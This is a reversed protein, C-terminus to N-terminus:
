RNSAAARDAPEPAAPAMRVFNNVIWALKECQAESGWGINLTEATTFILVCRGYQGRSPMWIARDVLDFSWSRGPRMPRIQVILRSPREFIVRDQMFVIVGGLAGLILGYESVTFLLPWDVDYQERGVICIVLLSLCFIGIAFLLLAVFEEQRRPGLILVDATHERIRVHEFGAM